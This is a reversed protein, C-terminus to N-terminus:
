VARSVRLLHLVVRGDPKEVSVKARLQERYRPSQPRMKISKGISDPIDFVGPRLIPVLHSGSDFHDLTILVLKVFLGKLVEELSRILAVGGEV